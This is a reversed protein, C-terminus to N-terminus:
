GVSTPEVAGDLWTTLLTELRQAESQQGILNHQETPDAETDILCADADPHDAGIAEGDIRVNRDYRWRRTRVCARRPWGRDDDWAGLGKNPLNRSWDEGYGIISFVAEPEDDTLLDRGHLDSRPTVGALQCLTRGHDTSDSLDPRIGAAIGPGSLILPVRHSGVRFVQKAWLGDEGLSAGHDATLMIATSDALGMRELGDLLRGVQLDMWHVLAHYAIWCRDAQAPDFHDGGLNEAMKQEFRNPATGLRDREPVPMGLFKRLIEEPPTVPTHPQLYSARILLPQDKRAEILELTTETVDEPPFPRGAPWKGGLMTPIGPPRILELEDHDIANLIGGMDGNANIHEAFPGYGQPLHIKGVNATHWGADALDKLWSRPRQGWEFNGWAAENHYIGTHTAPLGTLSVTRSPVCVPSSCFAREFRQGSAALRDINPTLVEPGGYCGLADARLEDCYIWLIREISMRDDM